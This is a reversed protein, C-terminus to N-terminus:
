DFSRIIITPSAATQTFKINKSIENTGFREFKLNDGNQTLNLSIEANPDIVYDKIGNSNGNQTLDAVVKDVNYILRVDNEDGNQAINVDSANSQISAGVLNSEGIQRIFVSNGQVTALKPDPATNFFSTFFEPSVNEGNLETVTEQSDDDDDDDSYSQSYSIQATCLLLGFFIVLKKNLITKM